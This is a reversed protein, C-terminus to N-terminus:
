DKALKKRRRPKNEITEKEQMKVVEKKIEPEKEPIVEILKVFSKHLANNGILYEYMDNECEFTDGKFLRGAEEKGKRIINKLENYKGLHFDDTVEVKVMEIGGKLIKLLKELQPIDRMSDIDTTYDDIVIYDGDTNFIGNAFGYDPKDFGIDLGNIYRYLNWSIPEVGNAFLGDDIMKLLNDIAKRFVEQNNVKYGLPERGKTNVGAPRGDQIDRTCFFMTEKVETNVITKIAEESYYVDGHLYCCPEKMPYYANLWNNKSKKNKNANGSDYENNHRLKKVELYDFAPNNTSIAIDEIGNEKLLRITREVLVENNIKFLQKPTDFNKYKGGCMIIYEM